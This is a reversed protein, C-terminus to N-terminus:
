NLRNWYRYWRKGSKKSLTILVAGNNAHYFSKLLKKYSVSQIEILDERTLNVLAEERREFPIVVGQLIVLPNEFFLSDEIGKSVENELLKLLSQNESEVTQGISLHASLIFTFLSFIKITNM